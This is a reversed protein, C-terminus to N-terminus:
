RAEYRVHGSGDLETVVFRTSSHGLVAVCSFVLGKQQHVGSPCSAQVHGGRQALSSQEIAREIKETNLITVSGSSGCASLVLSVAALVGAPFLRGVWRGRQAQAPHEPECDTQRHSPQM